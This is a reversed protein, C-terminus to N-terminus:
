KVKRSLFSSRGFDLYIVRYSGKDQFFSGRKVMILSNCVECRDGDGKLIFKDGAVFNYSIIDDSSEPTTEVICRPCFRPNNYYDIERDLVKQCQDSKCYYFNPGEVLCDNCFHNNCNHCYKIAEKDKHFFCKERKSNSSKQFMKQDQQHDKNFKKPTPTDDVEGKLWSIFTILRMFGLAIFLGWASVIIFFITFLHSVGPKIRIGNSFTVAGQDFKSLFFFAGSGSLICFIVGWFKEVM